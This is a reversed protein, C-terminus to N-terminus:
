SFYAAIPVLLKSLWQPIYVDSFDVSSFVCSHCFWNSKTSSYSWTREAITARHPQPMLLKSNFLPTWELMWHFWCTAQLFIWVNQSAELCQGLLPAQSMVRSFVQPLTWCHNILNLSLFYTNPRLLLFLSVESLNKISYHNFFGSKCYFPLLTLKLVLPQYLFCLKECSLVKKLSTKGSWINLFSWCPKCFVWLAVLQVRGKNEHEIREGGACCHHTFASDSSTLRSTNLSDHSALIPDEQGIVWGLFYGEMDAVMHDWIGCVISEGGRTHHM